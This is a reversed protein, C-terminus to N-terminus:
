RGGSLRKVDRPDVGIEALHSSARGNGAPKGGHTDETLDRQKGRSVRGRIRAAEDEDMVRRPKYAGIIQDAQEISDAAECLGRLTEREAEPRAGIKKEINLRLEFEEAVRVARNAKDRLDAVQRLAEAKGAEAAEARATLARIEEEHAAAEEPDAKGEAKYKGHKHLEARVAEVKSDIEEKSAFKTVDGIVAEIAERAPEGALLREMHLTYAAEKALKRLEDAETKVKQVELERSALDGKLRDIEADKKALDEVAAPDVGYSKVLGVIQEIVQKAGAVKPDSMLEARVSARAEDEIIEMGRRLQIAFDETLRSRTREETETIVKSLSVGAQQETVQRTLEDVLGPYHRKLDDLTMDDGEFLHEREEAFVRPYATKTAPDAVFDFTDLRFDEQVELTGDPLVKTSGYGRSSVGVQAGAEALAKFIRGNPTDLIEAEGIIENGRVDLRTILHSVRALKTRGDAPHDLEGFVRRSGIAENMRGFERKWLHERYLRKNETPKDSRAFEGKVVLKGPRTADESLHLNMLPVSDILLEAM